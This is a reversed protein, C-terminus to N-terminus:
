KMIETIPFGYEAKFWKAKLKYVDTKFGKCDEVVVGGNEMDFYRFDAVYVCIKTGGMAHLDIRVQRELDAILKGKELLKLEGWRRAELKSDFRIGDVVTATAGYKHPRKM